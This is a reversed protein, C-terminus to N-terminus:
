QGNIPPLPSPDGYLRGTPIDPKFVKHCDECLQVLDDGALRIAAQDRSQVAVLTQKGVQTLRDAFAQWREDAVWIDDVPGTGAMKLLPGALELQRALHELYRWEPESQPQRWDAVWIPDAAQNVLAVMIENLSVPLRPQPAEAVVVAPESSQQMAVSQDNDSNSCAQLTLGLLITTFLVRKNHKNM